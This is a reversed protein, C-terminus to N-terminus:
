EGERMGKMWEDRKMWEDMKKKNWVPSDNGRMVLNGVWWRRDERGDEAKTRKEQVEVKRGGEEPDEGRMGKKRFGLLQRRPSVTPTTTKPNILSTTTSFAPASLNHFQPLNNEEGGSKKLSPHSM